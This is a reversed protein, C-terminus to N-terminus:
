TNGTRPRSDRNWATASTSAAWLLGRWAEICTYLGILLLKSTAVTCTSSLCPASPTLLLWATGHVRTRIREHRATRAAFSLLAPSFVVPSRLLLVLAPLPM